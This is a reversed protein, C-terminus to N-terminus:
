PGHDAQASGRADAENALPNLAKRHQKSNRMRKRWRWGLVTLGTGWLLATSPEPVLNLGVLIFGGANNYTVVYNPTVVGFTGVLSNATFTAVTYVNGVLGGSLSLISNPQLTLGGIIDLRDSTSDLLSLEVEFTAGNAFTVNGTVTQTGISLGPAWTSGSTALVNASLTGTGEIRGGTQNTISSAVLTGNVRLLGSNELVQPTGTTTQVLLTGTNSIFNTGANIIRSARVALNGGSVELSGPVANSFVAATVANSGSLVFLNTTGSLMSRLVGQNVFGGQEIVVHANSTVGVITWTGFNTVASDTRGIVRLSVRPNAVNSSFIAGHNVLGSILTLAARPQTNAAATYGNTITGFNILDNSGGGVAIQPFATNDAGTAFFTITGRNTVPSNQAFVLRGDNRNFTFIQSSPSNSFSGTVVVTQGRAEGGLNLQGNGILYLNNNTMYSGGHTPSPLLAFIAANGIVTDNTVVFYNTLGATGPPRFVNRAGSAWSMTFNALTISAFDNTIAKDTGVVANTM